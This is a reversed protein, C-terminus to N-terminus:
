LARGKTNEDTQSLDEFLVDLSQGDFRPSLTIKRNGDVKIYQHKMLPNEHPIAIFSNGGYGKEFFDRAEELLNGIDYKEDYYSFAEYRLTGMLRILTRDENRDPFFEFKVTDEFGENLTLLVANGQSNPMFLKKRNMEACHRAFDEMSMGFRIGYVLSDYRVGRAMERSQMAEPSIKEGCSALLLMLLGLVGAM